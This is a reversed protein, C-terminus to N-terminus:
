SVTPGRRAKFLYHGGLAWLYISVIVLFVGAPSLPPPFGPILTVDLLGAIWVIDLIGAVVMLVVAPIDNIDEGM